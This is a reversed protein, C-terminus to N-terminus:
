ESEYFEPAKVPPEKYLESAILRFSSFMTQEGSKYKGRIIVVQGKDLEALEDPNKMTCEIANGISSLDDLAKDLDSRLEQELEPVITMYYNNNYTQAIEGVRGKVTIFHTDYRKKFRVPNNKFDTLLEKASHIVTDPEFRKLYDEFREDNKEKDGPAGGNAFYLKIWPLAYTTNFCTDYHNLYTNTIFLCLYAKINKEEAFEYAQALHKFAGIIGKPQGYYGQLYQDGLSMAAVFDRKECGLKLIEIGKKVDKKVGWGECYALYANMFDFRQSWEDPNSFRSSKVFELVEQKQKEARKKSFSDMPSNASSVSAIFISTIVLVCRLKSFM